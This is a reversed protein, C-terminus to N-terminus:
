RRNCPPFDPPFFDLRFRDHRSSRAAQSGRGGRPASIVGGVGCTSGHGPASVPSKGLMRTQERRREVKAAAPTGRTKWRYERQTHLVQPYHPASSRDPISRPRRRALCRLRCRSGALKAPAFNMHCNRQGCNASEARKEDRTVALGYGAFIPCLSSLTTGRGSHDAALPGPYNLRANAPCARLGDFRFRWASIENAALGAVAAVRRRVIGRPCFV